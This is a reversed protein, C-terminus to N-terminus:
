SGYVKEIRGTSDLYMKEFRDKREKRKQKREERQEWLPHEHRILADCQKGLCGHQKMQKPTLAKGHFACFACTNASWTGYLTRRVKPEDM